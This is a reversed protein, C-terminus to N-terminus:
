TELKADSMFRVWLIVVGLTSAIHDCYHDVIQKTPHQSLLSTEEPHHESCVQISKLGKLAHLAMIGLITCFDIMSIIKSFCTRLLILVLHYQPCPTRKDNTPIAPVQILISESDALADRLVERTEKSLCLLKHLTIRTPINVLQALINFLFLANLGQSPSKKM